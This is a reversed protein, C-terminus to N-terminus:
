KERITMVLIELVINFLRPSLPYEHKTGSRLLFGKLKEGKLIINDTPKNYIAKIIYINM